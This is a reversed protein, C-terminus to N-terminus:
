ARKAGRRCGPSARPDAGRHARASRQRGARHVVARDRPLHGSEQLALLASVLARVSRRAGARGVRALDDIIRQQAEFIHQGAYPGADALFTGPARRGPQPDAARIERRDRLRRHRPRARHARRRHRNSISTTPADRRGFRSRPVSPAGRAGALEEGAVRARTSRRDHGARIAALVAAALRRRLRLRPRGLRYLAYDADPKLAIAVNGPLTWPTTTWIM